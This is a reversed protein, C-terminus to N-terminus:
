DAAVLEDQEDMAGNTFGLNEALKQSPLASYPSAGPCDAMHAAVFKFPPVARTEAVGVVVDSHGMPCVVRVCPHCCFAEMSHGGRPGLVCCDMSNRYGDRLVKDLLYHERAEYLPRAEIEALGVTTM